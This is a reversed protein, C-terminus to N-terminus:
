PRDDIVSHFVHLFHVVDVDEGDESQASSDYGVHGFASFPDDDIHSRNYPLQLNFM